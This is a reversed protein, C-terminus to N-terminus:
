ELIQRIQQQTIEINHDRKLDYQIKKPTKKLEDMKIVLNIIDDTLEIKEIKEIKKSSSKKCTKKENSIENSNGGINSEILENCSENCSENGKNFKLVIGLNTQMYGNINLLPPNAHVDMHCQKCLSVLNWLKNKNFIGDDSNIIEHENADCQQNIHHVDVAINGATEQNSNCVECLTVLKNANYKSSDPKIDYFEKKTDMSKRIEKAKEIFEDDLNMSECVLIGYSKPGNGAHLKRSYILKRPNTPDREVLLHFLKVNKLEKIYSMDALFHLHTAFIFSSNRKSLQGVGAAVLATADQTETGSCLEDGLIISDENAYKLIVKFEKMEVEFSSLGAYLNDNSRIRTFLYKYPHFVFESAAVYMGAQAMIVNIGLSKMLSSKGVANVGFLLIGNVGDCGMKVDNPVYKTNTSIQEIIPHRIQKVDLYSHEQLQITPKMYGNTIANLANSQVIDIEAVFISMKNLCDLIEVNNSIIDVCWKNFETKTLKGLKELNAKLTGGSIHLYPIDIQWKSEKMKLFKIDKKSIQQKGVTINAGSENFYREIVDKRATTTYIHIGNTANDAMSIQGKIKGDGIETLKDILNDVFNRDTDIEEQLEDLKPSVGTIFVNNEIDNWLAKCNETILDKSIKNVLKQLTEITEDNPLLFQLSQLSNTNTQKGKCIKDLYEVSKLSKRLSETYNIMDLPMMKGTIIKRLYNDINKINGLINRLQHLPSGYKDNSKTIIYTSHLKILEEILSYRQNLLTVDTIPISLRKRLKIRGLPTKTNDLLELLSQRRGLGRTANINTSAKLNDIIDLQELCNNALMLYKDSNMIIEPRELKEIISKDHTLIFEILVCLAIRSYYHSEDEIDLQQMIDNIGRHKIYVTDLLTAQYRLKEFKPDIQERFIKFNYNFLHLANILDDDTIDYNQIYIILENPNKITLLKLIEDLAISIDGSPSNNIAMLGNEGTLCDIFALGINVVPERNAINAVSSVNSVYSKVQELYIVMTTNSFNESNINIGPSIIAGEKREFSKGNGIREQDFIVVTWGFREVGRQIFTNVSSEQPGSMFVKIDPNNYVQISKPGIKLQVDDCFEWINGERRGDPYVLGYIEYFEGVQMLVTLKEKKLKQQYHKLTEMYLEVVKQPKGAM